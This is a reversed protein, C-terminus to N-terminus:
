QHWHLPLVEEEIIKPGQTSTQGLISGSDGLKFPLRPSWSVPLSPIDVHIIIRRVLKSSGTLIVPCLERWRNNAVFKSSRGVIKSEKVNKPLSGSFYSWQKLMNSSIQMSYRFVYVSCFMKILFRLYFLARVLSEFYPSFNSL